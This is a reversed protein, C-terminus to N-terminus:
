EANNDIDQLINRAIEINRKVPELTERKLKNIMCSSCGSLKKLESLKLIYVEIIHKKEPYFEWADYTDDFFRACAEYINDSLYIINERNNAVLKLDWSKGLSSLKEDIKSPTPPPMSLSVSKDM